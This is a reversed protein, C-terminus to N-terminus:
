RATALRAGVSWVCRGQDAAKRAWKLSDATDHPVGIGEGYMLGLRVQATPDGKEALPQFRRLATAYDKQDYAAIADELAGAFASTASLLVAVIVGTLFRSFSM